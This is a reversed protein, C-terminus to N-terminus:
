RSSTAYLSALSPPSSTSYSPSPLTRRRVFRAGFGFNALFPDPAVNLQAFIKLLFVNAQLGVIGRIRGGSPSADQTVDVRMTGLDVASVGAQPAKGTLTGDLNATLESGGGLQWDFGGGLYLSLLYISISDAFAAAFYENKYKETDSGSGPRM